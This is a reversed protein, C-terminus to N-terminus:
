VGEQGRIRKGSGTMSREMPDPISGMGQCRIRGGSGTMYGDMPGPISGGGKMSEWRLSGL